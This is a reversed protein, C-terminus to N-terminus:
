FFDLHWLGVFWKVAPMAWCDSLSPEINTCSCYYSCIHVVTVITNPLRINFGTMMDNWQSESHVEDLCVLGLLGLSQQQAPLSAEPGGTECAKCQSGQHPYLYNLLSMSTKELFSDMYGNHRWGTMKIMKQDSAWSRSSKCCLSCAVSSARQAALDESEWAQPLSSGLIHHHKGSNIM